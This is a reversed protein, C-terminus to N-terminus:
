PGEYPVWEIKKWNEVGTIRATQVPHKGFKELNPFLHRSISTRFISEQSEPLSDLISTKLLKAFHNPAILFATNKQDKPLTTQMSPFKGALTSLAKDVLLDDPSFFMAANTAVFKVRFFRKSGLLKKNASKKSPYLGYRAGIERTFGVQGTDLKLNQVPLMPLYKLNYVAKEDETAPSSQLVIAERVGITNSFLSKLEEPKQLIDSFNGILALLPAYLKSEPYWCAVASGNSQKLLPEIKLVSTIKKNELQVSLCFSAGKPMHSWNKSDIEKFDDATLVQTSWANSQSFEFRLAKLQSFFAQYGFSLYKATVTISHKADGLKSGFLAVEQNSGFFAKAREMFTREHSKDPLQMGPESFIFLRNEESVIYVSKAHPLSLVNVKRGQLEDVKLQSDDVASKALFTMAEKVGSQDMTFLFHGLKGDPGKWLAIEAPGNLIWSMFKTPWDLNHEFAIRALAGRFNLWAAGSDRYYFVFDETLLDKLLPAAVIDKPLDFLSRTHIIADPERSFANDQAHTNCFLLFSLIFGLIFILQIAHSTLPELYSTLGFQKQPLTKTM